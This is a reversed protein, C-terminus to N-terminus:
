PCGGPGCVFGGRRSQKRSSSTYYFQQQVQQPYYYTPTRVSQNSPGACGGSAASGSELPKAKMIEAIGSMEIRGTIRRYEAGNRIFRFEPFYGDSGAPHHIIRIHGGAGIDWGAEKATPLDESKWADCAPCNDTVHVEVYSRRGTKPKTAKPIPPPADDAVAVHSTCDPDHVGNKCDPCKCTPCKCDPHQSIAPKVVTKTETIVQAPPTPAKPLEFDTIAILEPYKVVDSDSAGPEGVVAVPGPHSTEVSRPRPPVPAAFLLAWTACIPLISKASLM